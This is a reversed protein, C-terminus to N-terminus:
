SNQINVVHILVNLKLGIGDDGVTFRSALDAAVGGEGPDHRVPAVM